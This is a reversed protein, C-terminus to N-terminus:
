PMKILYFRQPHNTATLDNFTVPSSGFTGTGLTTWNILPLTLNTSSLVRYGQGNPGSFTLEINKDPLRTAGSFAATVSTVVLNIGNFAGLDELHAIIGPPLTGLKLVSSPRYNITGNYVFLPYSGATIDINTGQINITNTGNVHLATNITVYGGEELNFLSYTATDNNTPGLNLTNVTLIGSYVTQGGQVTGGQEVTATGQILGDGGLSAGALVHVEGSSTSLIGDIMLGGNSVFTPGAYTPTGTLTLTGPGTKTLAGTV